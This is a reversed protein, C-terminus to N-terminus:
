EKHQLTLAAQLTQFMNERELYLAQAQALSIEKFRVKDGPKAQAIRSLDVSALEVLKPYGGITQRDAMLIIPQGDAPIQISGMMVAESIMPQKNILELSPGELRYGMRDSQNSIIYPEAFFRKISTPSFWDYQLSPIVNISIDSGYQPINTYSLGSASLTFPTHQNSQWDHLVATAPNIALKDGVQLARGHYGGIGARLYTSKSGLVDPITFGGAVALYCRCGSECKKFSLIGEKEVEIARWSPVAHEGIYAGLDGGCLGIVTNETFRLTPGLLTMELVAENPHNGVLLNAMRCAFGDMAGGVNIGQHQHGVRGRDQITSLLGAKIVEISV